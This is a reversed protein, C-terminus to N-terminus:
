LKDMLYQANYKLLAYAEPVIHKGPPCDDHSKCGQAEVENVFANLINKAAVINGREMAKKANDLKVDLSNEIGKDNIWGFSFAEHKMSIIRDLFDLPKFDAPPATSGITKGTFAVKDKVARIQEATIDSEESPPILDPQIRFERIGPLGRSNIQFGQLSQGPLVVSREGSGWGAQGLVNLGSVWDPPSFFGVPIMRPTTAESLVQASTHKLYGPGSVLGEGSLEIGGEPLKIDIDLTGIEGKNSLDSIVIYSYTYIDANLVVETKLRTRKIDPLEGGWYTEAFVYIPLSFVIIFLLAIKKNMATVGVKLANM